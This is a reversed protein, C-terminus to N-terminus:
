LAKGNATQVERRVRANFAERVRSVEYLTVRTNTYHELSWRDFSVGPIRTAANHISMLQVREGTKYVGSMRCRNFSQLSGAANLDHISASFSGTVIVHLRSDTM